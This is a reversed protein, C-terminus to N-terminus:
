NLPRGPAAGSPGLHRALLQGLAELTSPKRMWDVVGQARLDDLTTQLPHGSLLVVPLDRAQEHLTRALELGGMEPMVLDTLVLEINGPGQELVKLAQRGNAAPIGRYNLAELAEIRWETHIPIPNPHSGMGPLADEKARRGKRM